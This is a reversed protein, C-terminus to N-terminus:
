AARAPERALQGLCEDLMLLSLVQEALAPTRAYAALMASTRAADLQGGTRLALSGGATAVRDALDVSLWHFLPPNFGRKKRAFVGLRDLGPALSALLRKPPRTFRLHPPLAVIADVFRHDLLPARLELGHAMTCLDAKRL